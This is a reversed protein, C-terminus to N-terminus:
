PLRQLDSVADATSNDEDMDRRLKAYLEPSRYVSGVTTSPKIGGEPSVDSNDAGGRRESRNDDEWVGAAVCMPNAWPHFGVGVCLNTSPVM